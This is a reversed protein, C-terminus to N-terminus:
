QYNFIRISFEQSLFIAFKCCQCLLGVFPIPIALVGGMEQHVMAESYIYRNTKTWTSTVSTTASQDVNRQRRQQQYASHMMFLMLINLANMETLQLTM